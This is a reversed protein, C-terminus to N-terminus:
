FETVKGCIPCIMFARYRKHPDNPIYPRYIMGTHGCDDCSAKNCIEIDVEQAMAAEPYGPRFGEKDMKSDLESIKM